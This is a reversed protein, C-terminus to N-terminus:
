QDEEAERVLTYGDNFYLDLDQREPKPLLPVKQGGWTVGDWLVEADPISFNWSVSSGTVQLAACDTQQVQMVPPLSNSIETHIVQVRECNGPSAGNKASTFNLQKPLAGNTRKLIKVGGQASTTHFWRNSVGLMAAYTQTTSSAFGM